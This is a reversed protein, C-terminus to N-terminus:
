VASRDSHCTKERYPPNPIRRLDYAAVAPPVPGPDVTELVMPRKAAQAVWAQFARSGRSQGRNEAEAPNELTMTM